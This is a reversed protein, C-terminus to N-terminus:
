VVIDDLNYNNSYLVPLRFSLVKSTGNMVVVLEYGDKFDKWDILVNDGLGKSLSEELSEYFMIEAEPLLKEAISEDLYTHILLKNHDLYDVFIKRNSILTYGSGIVREKFNKKEYSTALRGVLAVDINGRNLDFLVSATSGREYLIFNNKFSLEAAIEKMTPCFGLRIINDKSKINNSPYNFFGVSFFILVFLVVLFIFRKKIM